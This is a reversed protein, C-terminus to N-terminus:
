RARLPDLRRIAARARDATAPDRERTFTLLLGWAPLNDPERRVVDELLAVAEDARGGAQYLFARRLDPTTDQSLARAAHFDSEARTFDRQGAAKGGSALLRTDREMVGLWGIVAVAVVAVIVRSV